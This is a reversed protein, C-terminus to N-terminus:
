WFIVTKMYLGTFGSSKYLNIVFAWFCTKQGMQGENEEKKVNKMCFAYKSFCKSHGAGLRKYFYVVNKHTNYPYGNNTDAVKQKSLWWM